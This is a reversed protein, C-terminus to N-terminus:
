SLLGKYIRILKKEEAGWNYKEIVAKRGNKGMDEAEGDNDLINKIVKAIEGPKLPDVCVGCNHKEIIEKWLPFDSAIVPIGALMYEFMKIPLSDLYNTQPYLTVLGIKSKALIAAIQERNVFGYENVLDWGDLIKLEEHLSEPSYAGALNLKTNSITLSKIIEVIGRIKTIGGVYCVENNKDKWYTTSSFEQIIPFNCIDTTHPTIKLFRDRIFPTATVIFSLKKSVYNEYTKFVVSIAKRLYKNIWPKGLIQEPVDEHVDYIVIKGKRKLKLAFPLLEPDHFHYIDADLSLAKKYVVKSINFMRFFRGKTISPANIINVGNRVEEKCNAAVLFVKYGNKALSTCEKHFIRVDSTGHASSFHCVKILNNKTM